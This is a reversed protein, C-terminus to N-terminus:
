MFEWGCYKCEPCYLMNSDPDDSILLNSMMGRWGCGCKVREDYKDKGYGISDQRLTKTGASM